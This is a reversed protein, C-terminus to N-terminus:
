STPTHGDSAAVLGRSPALFLSRTIVPMAVSEKLRTTIAVVRSPVSLTLILIYQKIRQSVFCM